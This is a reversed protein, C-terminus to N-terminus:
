IVEDLNKQYDKGDFEEKVRFTALWILVVKEDPSVPTKYFSNLLNYAEERSSTNTDKLLVDDPIRSLKIKTKNTVVAKFDMSPKKILVVDGPEFGKDYRRITSFCEDQLKPYDHSFRIYKM